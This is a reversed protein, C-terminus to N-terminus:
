NGLLVSGSAPTVSVSVAQPPPPTLSAVTGAGGAACGQLCTVATLVLLFPSVVLTVQRRIAPPGIRKGKRETPTLPAMCPPNCAFPWRFPGIAPLAARATRIAM